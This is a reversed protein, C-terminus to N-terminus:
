QISRSLLISYSQRYHECRYAGIRVQSFFIYLDLYSHLLYHYTRQCFDVQARGRSVMCIRRLIIDVRQVLRSWWM